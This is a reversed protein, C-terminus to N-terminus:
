VQARTSLTNIVIAILIIVGSLIQQWYPAVDLLNLANQLLALLLVGFVTRWIAGRGGGISTGGIVVAAIANLTLANAPGYPSGVGVRTAIILGGIAAAVAGVMLVFTM